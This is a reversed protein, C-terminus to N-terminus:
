EDSVMIITTVYDTTEITGSLQSQKYYPSASTKRAWGVFPQSGLYRISATAVGSANTLGHLIVFTCNPSGTAPSAPTGTIEYSYSDAGIYTIQHIGNYDEENAGEINVYEGDKLGHSTHSVTVTTGSRTLGVSDEYPYVGGTDAKIFVRTNEINGGGSNKATVTINVSNNITVTGTSDNEVKSESPNAKPSGVCNIVLNGTSASFHVDYTNGSYQDGTADYTDATAYEAARSNNIYNNYSINHTTSEFLISGGTDINSIISNNTFTMTNPQVQTRGNTFSCNLVERTSSNVMLDVLGHTDFISGYLGFTGVDTDTATIKFPRDTDIAKTTCGSIGSTGVKDGIKISTTGTGNGVCSIEYLSSNVNISTGVRRQEFVLIDGTAQFDCGNTGVNDGLTLSGTTYFIGGIKQIIGWGNSTNQDAALIDNFDFPSGADDGYAILGDGIYLHDIWLSQTKKASTTLNFRFGIRTISTMTPKTGSDVARSLDVVIPYWGGPYSDKGSIKWYGTNTGDYCWFQIGGNADTNLENLTTLMIWARFHKNGSLDWSGSVYPDLNGSSWLEFGICQTGRKYFDTVDSPNGNTWDNENECLNIQSYNKCSVTVTM